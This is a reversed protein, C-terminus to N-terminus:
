AVGVKEKRTRKKNIQEPSFRANAQTAMEMKVPAKTIM